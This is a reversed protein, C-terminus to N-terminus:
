VTEHDCGGELHSPDIERIEYRDLGKLGGLCATLVRRFTASVSDSMRESPYLYLVRVEPHRQLWEAYAAAQLRVDIRSALQLQAYTPTKYAGRPNPLHTSTVM